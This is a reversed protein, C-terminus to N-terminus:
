NEPVPISNVVNWNSFPAVVPVTSVRRKCEKIAWSNIAERLYVKQGYIYIYINTVYM